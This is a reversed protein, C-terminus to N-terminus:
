TISRRIIARAIRICFAPIRVPDRRQWMYDVTRFRPDWNALYVRAREKQGALLFYLGNRHPLAAAYSAQIYPEMVPRLIPHFENNLQFDWFPLHVGGTYQTLTRIADSADGPGTVLAASSFTALAVTYTGQMIIARLALPTGLTNGFFVDNLGKRVAESVPKRLKSNVHFRKLASDVYGPINLLSELQYTQGEVAFKAIKHRLASPVRVKKGFAKIAPKGLWDVLHDRMSTRLADLGISANDLISQAWTGGWNTIGMQGAVDQLSLLTSPSTAMQRDGSRSGLRGQFSDMIDIYRRILQKALGQVRSDGNQWAYHTAPIFMSLPDLSYKDDHAKQGESLGTNNPYRVPQYSNFLPEFGSQLMATLFRATNVNEGELASIMTALATHFHADGYGRDSTASVPSGHPNLASDLVFGFRDIYVGRRVDGDFYTRFLDKKFNSYQNGGLTPVDPVNRAVWGGDMFDGQDGHLVDLVRPDGIEGFDGDGDGGRLLNGGGSDWLEDNGAGGYLTDRDGDGYLTDDGGAGYLSDGGVGGHIVDNGPGGRVFDEGPGADVTVGIIPRGPVVTSGGAGGSAGADDLSPYIQIVDDSADGNVSASRIHQAPYTVTVTGNLSASLGYQGGTPYHYPVSDLTITDPIATGTVSLSDGHSAATPLPVGQYTLGSVTVDGNGTFVDIPMNLYPMGIISVSTNGEKTFVQIRTVPALLFMGVNSDNGEVFIYPLAPVPPAISWLQSSLGIRDYLDNGTVELTTGDMVATVGSLLRRPECAEVAPRFRKRAGTNLM